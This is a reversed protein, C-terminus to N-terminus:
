GPFAAGLVRLIGSAKTRVEDWEAGPDSDSTIAGGVALTMTGGDVVLTRIVVSLDAAGNDAFYGICGSYPGRERTELGALLRMTAAKPAGTMSGPPFAAEIARAPSAEAGLEAVITSVMQHVSPYSEIAFLREVRVSGPRAHRSLDNRLLDVIMVNEARDKQSDRLEAAIRADEEPDVARPRTGKIPEARILGAPSVQVFREPSTSLMAWEGVRFFAGFASGNAGRLRLYTELPDEALRPATLETTLCVEYSNGEAIEAQAAAIKALYTERTDRATFTPAEQEEHHVVANGAEERPDPQIPTSHAPSPAPHTPHAPASSHTKAKTIAGGAPAAGRQTPNDLFSQIWDTPQDIQTLFTTSDNVHDIIIARDAHFLRGVITPKDHDSRHEPALHELAHPQEAAASHVEHNLQGVWGLSGPDSASAKHGARPFPPWQAALWDFARVPLTYTIGPGTLETWETRNKRVFTVASVGPSDLFLHSYRNRTEPQDANSSDLWLFRHASVHPGGDDGDLHPVTPQNAPQDATHAAAPVTDNPRDAKCALAVPDLASGITKRSPEKYEEIPIKLDIGRSVLWMAVVTYASDAINKMETGAGRWVPHDASLTLMATTSQRPGRSFFADEEAAWTDWFPRFTDGDRELARRKRFDPSANLTILLADPAPLIDLAASAGVGEAIIIDAPATVREPGPINREWDWTPWHASRRNALNSIATTFVDIGAQLGTWGQYTDELAFTGLSITSPLATALRDALERALSTKGSGSRGELLIVLPRSM